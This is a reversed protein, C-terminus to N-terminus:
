LHSGPAVVKMGHIVTDNYKPSEISVLSFIITSDIPARVAAQYGILQTGAIDLRSNHTEIATEGEIKGVTIILNSDRVIMATDASTVKSRLLTLSSDTITVSNIEADTVLLDHCSEVVLRGIRGSITGGHQKRCTVSDRYENSFPKEMDGAVPRQEQKLHNLLLSAFLEPQEEFAM